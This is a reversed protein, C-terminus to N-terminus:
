EAKFGIADFFAAYRGNHLDTGMLDYMGMDYLLKARLSVQPGYLGEMSGVNRQFLAGADKLTRYRDMELYLYREPHALVPQYGDSVLNRIEEEPVLDGVKAGNSIPLEVLIHNGEWPMLWGNRLVDPWTEPILRYEMSPVLELLINQRALEERLFDCAATVRDPTNPYLRTRHSTCVVRDFGWGAQKRALAVSEELAQAGDDIAPLIHCHCDVKM